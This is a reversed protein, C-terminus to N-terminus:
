PAPAAHVREAIRRAVDALDFAPADADPAGLGPGWHVVEGSYGTWVTLAEGVLLRPQGGERVLEPFIEHDALRARLRQLAAIALERQTVHRLRDSAPTAPPPIM